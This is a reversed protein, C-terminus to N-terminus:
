YNNSLSKNSPLYVQIICTKCKKFFMHLVLIHGEIKTVHGVHKALEKEMIIAVGSGYTLKNETKVSSFCKFKSSGKFAFDQNSANLKTESLGLVDINKNQMELIVNNQDITNNVGRINHTAITITEKELAIHTINTENM